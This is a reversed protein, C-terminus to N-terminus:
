PPFSIFLEHPLMRVGISGGLAGFWLPNIKSSHFPPSILLTVFGMHNYAEYLGSGARFNENLTVPYSKPFFISSMLISAGFSCKLTEFFNSLLFLSSISIISELSMHSMYWIWKFIETASTSSLKTLTQFYM